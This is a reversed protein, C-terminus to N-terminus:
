NGTLNIARLRVDDVTTLVRFWLWKEVNVVYMVSDVHVHVDFFVRNPSTVDIFRHTLMKWCRATNTFKVMVIGADEAGCVVNVSCVCSAGDAM